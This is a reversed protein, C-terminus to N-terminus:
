IRDGCGYLPKFMLNLGSKMKQKQKPVPINAGTCLLLLCALFHTQAFVKGLSLVSVSKIM